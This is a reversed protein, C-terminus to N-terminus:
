SIKTCIASSLIAFTVLNAYIDQQSIVLCLAAAPASCFSRTESRTGGRSAAFEASANCTVITLNEKKSYMHQYLKPITLVLVQWALRTNGKTWLTLHPNRWPRYTLWGFITPANGIRSQIKKRLFRATTPCVLVWAAFTAVNELSTRHV